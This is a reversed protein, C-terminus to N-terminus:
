EQFYKYVNEESFGVSRMFDLFMECVDYDHIGNEDKKRVLNNQVCYEESLQLDIPFYVGLDGIKVDLGVIVSAGFITAIQLRDANSHPNLENIQVVYGCHESM